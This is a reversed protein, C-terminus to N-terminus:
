GHCVEKRIFSIQKKLERHLKIATEKDLTIFQINSFDGKEGSDIEIYIDEKKNYYCRLTTKQTEKSGCFFLKTNAM